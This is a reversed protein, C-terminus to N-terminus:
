TISLHSIALASPVKNERALYKPNRKLFLFAIAQRRLNYFIGSSGYLNAYAFGACRQKVEIQAKDLM